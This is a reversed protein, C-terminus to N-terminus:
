NSDATKKDVIAQLVRVLKQAIGNLGYALSQLPANITGMLVSLLIERSPLRSLAVMEEETFVKGGILGGKLTVSTDRGFDLIVKASPGADTRVLALATPGFLFDGVDPLGLESLALITYNNKVVRYDTEAERLRLRLTTMQAVNLGRFGTFILDKSEGVLKKVEQVAEQKRENVKTTVM